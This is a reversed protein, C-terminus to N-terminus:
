KKGTMNDVCSRRANTGAVIRAIGQDLWLEGNVGDYTDVRDTLVCPRKLSDM